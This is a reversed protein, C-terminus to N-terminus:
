RTTAGKAASAAPSANILESWMAKLASTGAIVVDGPLILPDQAQGSRISDIDFKTPHRQGDTNRFVVVTWDSRDTDIGGSMAIIQLLTTKGKLAHLGPKRVAGDVTVRQSNFEKVNVTVQPSRLYKGELKKALDHEIERATKGAVSVEGLLPVSITGNEAVEVTRALEPVKFVSIELVDAQGIKYAALADVSGSPAVVGDSLRGPNSMFSGADPKLEVFEGNSAGCGGIAVSIMIFLTVLSFCRRRAVGACNPLGNLFNGEMYGQPFASVSVNPLQYKLQCRLAKVRSAAAGIEAQRANVTIRWRCLLPLLTSPRQM